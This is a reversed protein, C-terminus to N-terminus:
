ITNGKCVESYRMTSMWSGESRVIHVNHPHMLKPYRHVLVNLVGQELHHDNTLAEYLAGLSKTKVVPPGIGYWSRLAVTMSADMWTEFADADGGVVGNSLLPRLVFETFGLAGATWNSIRRSHTGPSCRPADFM